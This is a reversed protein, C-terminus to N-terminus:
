REILPVVESLVFAIVDEETLADPSAGDRVPREKTVARRGRGMGTRGLVFPPDESTDLMLEIFDDSARESTLRVSGAPTEVKFRHGEGVLASALTNFAPVARMALFEDYARAAADSRERRSAADRRAQEIAARVRRRVEPIDM